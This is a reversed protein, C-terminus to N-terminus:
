ITSGIHEALKDALKYTCDSYFTRGDYDVSYNHGQNGEGHYRGAQGVIRAALDRIENTKM